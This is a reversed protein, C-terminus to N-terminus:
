RKPLLAAQRKKVETIKTWNEAPHKMLEDLQATLGELDDEPPVSQGGGTPMVAAPNPAPQMKRRAALTIYEGPGANRRLLEVVQPDSEELGTAVLLTKTDVGPEAPQPAAGGQTAAPEIPQGLRSMQMLLLAEEDSKGRETWKRFEVLQESFGDVTGQLKAIRKDKQSQTLREVEKAIIPKLAEAIATVDSASPPVTQPSPSGPPQGIAGGQATIEMTEAM